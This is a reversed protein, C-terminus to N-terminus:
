AEPPQRLTLVPCKATRVVAEAVSGMVLRRLGSRGHTGMVIMEVNEEEATKLITEAPPGELMRYSCSIADDTPKVDLLAADIGELAEVPNIGQLSQIARDMVHVILLEADSDRAFASAYEVAAKSQASFDVPVLIKRDKM